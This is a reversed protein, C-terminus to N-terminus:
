EKEQMYVAGVPPRVLAYTTWDTLFSYDINVKKVNKVRRYHGPGIIKWLVGKRDITTTEPPM